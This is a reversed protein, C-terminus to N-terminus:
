SPEGRTQSSGLTLELEDSACEEHIREGEWAKVLGPLENNGNSSSGFAFDDAGGDIMQVDHHVAVGGM